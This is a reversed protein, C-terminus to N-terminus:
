DYLREHTNRNRELSYRCVYNICHDGRKQAQATAQLLDSVTWFDREVGAAM